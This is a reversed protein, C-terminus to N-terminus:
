LAPAGAILFRPMKLGSYTALTRSLMFRATAPHARFRETEVVMPATSLTDGAVEVSTRGAALPMMAAM